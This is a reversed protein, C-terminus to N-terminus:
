KWAITDPTISYTPLIFFFPPYRGSETEGGRCQRTHDFATYDTHLYTGEPRGLAGVLPM